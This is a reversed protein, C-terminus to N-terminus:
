LPIDFAFAGAGSFLLSISLAFLLGYLGRPHPSLGRLHPRLVLPKLVIAGAILAAIQTWAGFVLAAASAIEVLGLVLGVHHAGRGMLPRLLDAIPLRNRYHEIGLYFLAAGLAVRIVFPALM